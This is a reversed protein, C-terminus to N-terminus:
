GAPRAGALQQPTPVAGAQSPRLGSDLAGLMARLLAIRRALAAPEARGQTAQWSAIGGGLVASQGGALRWYPWLTTAASAAEPQAAAAQQAFSLWAAAAEFRGAAYLARGAAGAQPLTQPSRPLRSVLPQFAVALPIYGAEDVAANAWAVDLAAAMAEAQAAPGLARLAWQYALARGRSTTVDPAARSDLEGIEFSFADYVRGLEAPDLAGAATAREAAVVRQGLATKGSRAMAVLVGFDAEEETGPPLPQGRGHLLAFPLPQAALSPAVEAGAGALAEALALFPADEDLGREQLLGLGLQAQETEGAVLQCAILAKQWYPVSYYFPLGRRVEGCGGDTDGLLLESEVRARTIPEEDFRRPVIELLRALGQTDGVKGLRDIRLALLGLDPEPSSEQATGASPGLSTGLSTGASSGTPYQRQAQPSRVPGEARSLLLRRALDRLVASRYRDPLLALLGTVRDRDSGAWLDEGLGGNGADLLGLNDPDLADLPNIEIGQVQPADAAPGAGEPQRAKPDFPLLPTPPELAIPAGPDSPSAGSEQGHAPVADGMALALLLALAIADLRSRLSPPLARARSAIM